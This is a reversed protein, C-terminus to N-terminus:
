RLKNQMKILIRSVYELVLIDPSIEAIQGLSVKHTWVYHVEAFHNSLYPIMNNTFSDRYLLLKRHDRASPNVTKLHGPGVIEIKGAFKDVAPEKTMYVTDSFSNKHLLQNKMDDPEPTSGFRIQFEGIAPLKEDPSFHRIIERAGLYGGVPNWHTDARYFLNDGYFKKAYLLTDKLFIVPVPSNFEQLHKRLQESPANSAPQYKRREPLYEPYIQIKDPAVVLLFGINESSLKRYLKELFKRNRERKYYPMRLTGNYQLLTNEQSKPAYFCFDNEGLIINGLTFPFLEKQIIGCGKLMENRFPIRDNYYEELGRALKRWHLKQPFATLNRNEETTDQRSAFGLQIVQPLLLIAFFIGIIAAQSYSHKNM